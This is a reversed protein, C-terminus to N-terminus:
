VLGETRPLLTQRALLKDFSSRRELHPREAYKLEGRISGLKDSHCCEDFRGVKDAGKANKM